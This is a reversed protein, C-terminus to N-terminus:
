EGHCQRSTRASWWEASTADATVLRPAVQLHPVDGASASLDFEVAGVEAEIGSRVRRVAPHGLQPGPSDEFNTSAINRELSVRNVWQEQRGAWAVRVEVLLGPVVGVVWVVV